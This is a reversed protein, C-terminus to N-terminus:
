PRKGQLLALLIEQMASQSKDTNKMNWAKQLSKGIKKREEERAELVKIDAYERWAWEMWDWEKQWEEPSKWGLRVLKALQEEAIAVRELNKIVVRTHADIRVSLHTDYYEDTTDDCVKKIEEETLLESM